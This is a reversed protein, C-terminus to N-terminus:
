SKEWYFLGMNCAARSMHHGYDGGVNRNQTFRWQVSRGAASYSLRPTIKSPANAQRLCASVRLPGIACIDIQKLEEDYAM